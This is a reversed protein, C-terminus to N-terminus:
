EFPTTEACLSPNTFLRFTSVASRVIIPFYTENLDCKSSNRKLVNNKKKKKKTSSIRLSERRM